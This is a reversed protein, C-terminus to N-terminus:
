KLFITEYRIFNFSLINVWVIFIKKEGIKFVLEKGFDIIKRIVIKFNIIILIIIM